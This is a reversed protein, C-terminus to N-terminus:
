ADSGFEQCRQGPDREDACGSDVRHDRCRCWFRLLYANPRAAGRREGLQEGPENQAPGLRDVRGAGRASSSTCVLYRPRFAHSCGRRRSSPRQGWRWWCWVLNVAMFTTTVDRSVDKYTAWPMVTSAVVLVVAAVVPFALRHIDRPYGMTKSEREAGRESSMPGRWSSWLQRDPVCTGTNTTGGVRPTYVSLSRTAIRAM